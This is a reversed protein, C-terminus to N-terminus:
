LEITEGGSMYDKHTRQKELRCTSRINHLRTDVRKTASAAIVDIANMLNIKAQMNSTKAARIMQKQQAKTTKVEETTSNRFRGEILEFPTFTDKELLWVISVDDPNYAVTVKGGQLYRETFADNRYRLKNVILGNRAFTGRTRPLLTHMLTDYDVSILNAGPQTLAHNWIGSSTPQIDETYPFHEVIRKSNYYLICHLLVTEFERLTLCADKRYDRAGREQYDPEIVGKGRLQTKYLSQVLDFFKEVVGKLEPRYPPLNVLTVGLEAIQEFNVSQYESGMDTVLVAPLQSCNWEEKDIHIGFQRCWAVKDAIVNALLGKLSYVGGEWSLAYGCCLGSYADVCATLIPRGVLSGAEDVLYIDCITADLMGTGITPAFSQVGDGLLPRNNRQYHKLGDRSIYYTKMSKHKRYFYRFQHLTPYNALLKGAEGCYKHRLMQAYAQPLSNKHRTYYFKNLAWRMNKEDATLGEKEKKPPPVLAAISQYVLYQRLYHRITQKSIGREEAICAIVESRLKKDGLFPLVGAILTYREHALRQQQPPLEELRSMIGAEDESCPEYGSLKQEEVWEPMSKRTCDIVLRQGGHEKLVRIIQEGKKMLM